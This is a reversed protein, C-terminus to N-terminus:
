RDSTFKAIPAVTQVMVHSDPVQRLLVRIDLITADTDFAVVDMRDSDLNSIPVANDACVNLFRCLDATAEFRMKFREAM